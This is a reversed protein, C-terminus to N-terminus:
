HCKNSTIRCVPHRHTSPPLHQLEPGPVGNTRMGYICVLLPTADSRNSLQHKFYIDLPLSYNGGPPPLTIMYQDFGSNIKDQVATWNYTETWYKGFEAIKAAPPGEAWAPGTIEISTRFDAVKERTEEIFAPDVSIRYPRAEAVSYNARTPPAKITGALLSLLSLSLISPSSM